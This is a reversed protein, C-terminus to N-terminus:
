AALTRWPSRDLPCTEGNTSSEHWKMICHLHFVHTCVGWIVPCEDGPMKCAPCAVDFTVQCIGCVDNSDKVAWCWESALTCSTFQVKM